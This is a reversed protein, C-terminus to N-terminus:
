LALTEEDGPDAATTRPSQNIRLTGYARSLVFSGPLAVPGQGKWRSILADMAATHGATLAGAPVGADIVAARLVRARVALPVTVLHAADLGDDRTAALRAAAAWQDLAEADARLLDATRALAAPVGPGLADTLAPLATTRVRVRTYSPDSNHPDNWPQLGLAACAKETTARTVGLFPRLYLGAAPAMGALSRGGSGRGLGLLVTEAQDDLTHGLLVAVAGLREAAAALADYRVTRAAGEPGGVAGVTVVVTECEVGLARAQAVVRAAQAGSGAQLGHDVTVATLPRGAGAAAALLALSDAGGSCAVVVPGAPHERLAARVARRCTAVAPDPRVAPDAPSATPASSV